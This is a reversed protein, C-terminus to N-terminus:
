IINENKNKLKNYSEKDNTMYYIGNSPINENGFLRNDKYNSVNKQDKYSQFNSGSHTYSYDQHKEFFQDVDNNKNNVTSYSRNDVNLKNLTKNNYSDFNNDIRINNNVSKSNNLILNPKQNSDNLKNPYNYCDDMNSMENTTLMFNKIKEVNRRLFVPGKRTLNILNNSQVYMGHCLPLRGSCTEGGIFPYDFMVELINESIGTITGISGFPIFKKDDSRINIVRDGLDFYQIDSFREIFPFVESILYGPNLVLTENKGKFSNQNYNTKLKLQIFDFIKNIDKKNLYNSNQSTFTSGSIEQTSIWKFVADLNDKIEIKDGFLEEFTFTYDRRYKDSLNDLIDILFKFNNKYEKILSIAISSFELNYSGTYKNHSYRSYGPVIMRNGKDMRLSLGLTWRKSNADDENELIMFHSTIVNIVFHSIKLESSIEDMTLYFEDTSKLINKASNVPIECSKNYNDIDSITVKVM